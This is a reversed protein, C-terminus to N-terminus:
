VELKNDQFIVYLIHIQLLKKTDKKHKAILIIGIVILIIGGIINAIYTGIIVPSLKDINVEIGMDALQELELLDQETM